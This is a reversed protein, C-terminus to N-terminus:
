LLQNEQIDVKIFVLDTVRVWNIQGWQNHHKELFKITEM